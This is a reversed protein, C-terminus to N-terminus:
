YGSVNDPQEDDGFEEPALEQAEGESLHFRRKVIRLPMGHDYALRAESILPAGSSNASTKSGTSM